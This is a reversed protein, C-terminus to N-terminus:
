MTVSVVISRNKQDPTRGRPRCALRRREDCHNRAPRMLTSLGPHFCRLSSSLTVPKRIRVAIVASPKHTAAHNISPIRM